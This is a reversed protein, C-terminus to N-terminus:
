RELRYIYPYVLKGAGITGDPNKVRFRKNLNYPDRGPIDGRMRKMRGVVIDEGIKPNWIDDLPHCISLVEIGLDIDQGYIFRLCKAKYKLMFKVLKKTLYGRFKTPMPLYRKTEKNQYGEWHYFTENEGLIGHTIHIM